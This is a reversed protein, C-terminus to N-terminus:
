LFMVNQKEKHQSAKIAHHSALFITPVKNVPLLVRDLVRALVFEQVQVAAAATATTALFVVHKAAERLPQM